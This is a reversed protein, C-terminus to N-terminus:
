RTTVLLTTAAALLPGLISLGSQLDGLFTADLGLQARVAQRQQLEARVADAHTGVVPALARLLDRAETRLAHRPVAYVCGVLATGAVGFVLVTSSTVPAAGHLPALQAAAGLAFTSLAVLAGLPPLLGVTLERLRLYDDVRRGLTTGAPVAHVASRVGLMAVVVTTSGVVAWITLALGRWSVGTLDVLLTSVCLVVVVAVTAVAAARLPGWRVARVRSVDDSRRLGLEFVVASTVALALALGSWAVVWDRDPSGSRAAAASVAVVAGVAFGALVVAVLRGRGHRATTVGPEETETM